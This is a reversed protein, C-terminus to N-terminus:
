SSCTWCLLLLSIFSHYYFLITFLSILLINNQLLLLFFAYSTFVCFYRIKEFIKEREEEKLQRIAEIRQAALFEGSDNRTHLADKLNKLKEERKMDLESERLRFEKM